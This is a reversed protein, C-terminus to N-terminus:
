SNTSSNEAQIKNKLPPKKSEKKTEQNETKPATKKAEKPGTAHRKHPAPPASAVTPEEIPTTEVTTPTIALQRLGNDLQQLSITGNAAENRLIENARSLLSPDNMACIQKMSASISYWKGNVRGSQAFWDKNVINEIQGRVLLDALQRMEASKIKTVEWYDNGAMYIVDAEVDAADQPQDAETQETQKEESGNFPWVVGKVMATGAAFLLYLGVVAGVGILIPKTPSAKKRNSQLDMMDRGSDVPLIIKKNGRALDEATIVVPMRPVGFASVYITYQDAANLFEITQNGIDRCQNGSLDIRVGRAASGDSGVCTLRITRRLNAGTIKPEALTITDGSYTLFRNSVGDAIFDRTESTYGPHDYIVHFKGGAPVVGADVRVNRPLPTAIGYNPKLPATIHRMGTDSEPISMGPVFVVARCGNYDTQLCGGLMRALEPSSKYDRFAVEGSPPMMLGFAPRGGRLGEIADRVAADDPGAPSLVLAKELRAFADELQRGTYIINDGAFITIMLYGNRTDRVNPIIMGYYYGDPTHWFTYLRKVAFTRAIPRPDFLGRTWGESMGSAPYTYTIKTDRDVQGSLAVKINLAM